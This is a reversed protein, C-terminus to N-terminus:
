EYTHDIIHYPREEGDHLSIDFGTLEAALNLPIQFLQGRTLDAVNVDLTVSIEPPFIGWTSIDTPNKDANYAVHWVKLKDQWVEVISSMSGEDLGCVVLEHAALIKVFETSEWDSIVIVTWGSDLEVADYSSEPVEETEGTDELDILELVSELDLDKIALWSLRFGM